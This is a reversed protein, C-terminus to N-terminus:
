GSVEPQIRFHRECKRLPACYLRVSGTRFHELELRGVFWSKCLRLFPTRVFTTHSISEAQDLLSQNSSCHIGTNFLGGGYSGQNHRPRVSEQTFPLPKELAIVRRLCPLVARNEPLATRDIRMM